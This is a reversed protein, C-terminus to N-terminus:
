VLCFAASIARGGSVLDARGDFFYASRETRLLKVSLKLTNGPKVFQGFKAEEVSVLRYSTRDRDFSATLLESAAQKLSELMLVGPMVPFDRFHDKLFEEDGRLTYSATLSENKKLEVIHDIFSFVKM